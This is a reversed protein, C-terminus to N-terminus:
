RRESAHRSGQPRSPVVESGAHPGCTSPRQQALAPNGGIRSGPCRSGSQEPAEICDSRSSLQQSGHGIMPRHDRLGHRLALLRRVGRRLRVHEPRRGGGPRNGVVNLSSLLGHSSQLSASTRAAIPPASKRSAIVCAISGSASTVLM